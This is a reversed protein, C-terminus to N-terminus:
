DTSVVKGRNLLRDIQALNSRVDANGPYVSLVETWLRRAESFEGARFQRLAERYKGWVSPDAQLDALSSARVQRHLALERYSLVTSDGPNLSLAQDFAEEAGLFDEMLLKELGTRLFREASARQRFRKVAFRLDDRESDEALILEYFAIALGWDANRQARWGRQEWEILTAARQQRASQLLDYARPYNWDHRLVESFMGVADNFRKEALATEGLILLYGIADDARLSDTSKGGPAATTAQAVSGACGLILIWATIVRLVVVGVPTAFACWDWSWSNGPM